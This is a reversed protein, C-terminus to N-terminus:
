EGERERQVKNEPSEDKSYLGNLEEVASAEFVVVESGWAVALRGMTEACHVCSVKTEGYGCNSGFITQIYQLHGDLLIM